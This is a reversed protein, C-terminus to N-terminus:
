ADAITATGIVATAALTDSHAIRPTLGHAAVVDALVSAQRESTETLVSGGPALWRPAVAVVRRAIDLGDAGGDLAERPEHLRAEPPLLGVEDTPVYPTNAVLVDVRGHLRSPLPEDLDGVYVFADDPLNRRACHAAAPDIDAAHLELRNRAAAMAAGVAGSGCCLDVVVAGDHALAIAERALLESRRRPVFVGPEIAIRLGCFEAWGLVQEIPEGAVRRAVLTDLEAPTSANATLLRAEDEAFVCGAARLREVIARKSM